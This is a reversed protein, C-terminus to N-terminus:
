FSESSKSRFFYFKQFIYFIFAFVAFSLLLKYILDLPFALLSFSSFLLILATYFTTMSHVIFKSKVFDEGRYKRALMYEFSYSAISSGLTGLYIGLTVYLLNEKFFIMVIPLSLFLLIGLIGVFFDGYRKLNNYVIRPSIVSSVMALSLILSVATFRYKLYNLSLFLFPGVFILSVNLISNFFAYLLVLPDKRFLSLNFLKIQKRELKGSNFFFFLSYILAVFGGLVFILYFDNVALIRVLDFKATLSQKTPLVDILFSFLVFLSSTLLVGIQNMSRLFVSVIEHKLLSKKFENLDFSLFSFLAPIIVAFILISDKQLVYLYGFSFLSVSLLVIALFITTKKVKFSYSLSSFIFSFIVQFLAVLSVYVFSRTYHYVLLDIFQASVFVLLFRIFVENIVFKNKLKLIESGKTFNDHMGSDVLVDDKM